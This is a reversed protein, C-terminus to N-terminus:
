SHLHTYGTTTIVGYLDIRGLVVIVLVINLCIDRNSSPWKRVTYTHMALLTSMRGALM